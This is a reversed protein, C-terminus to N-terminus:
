CGRRSYIGAALQTAPAETPPRVLTENLGDQDFLSPSPAGLSAPFTVGSELQAVKEELTMRGLLDQVREPVPADANQYVPKKTEQSLACSAGCALLISFALIRRTTM